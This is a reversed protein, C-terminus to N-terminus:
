EEFNKKNLDDWMENFDTYARSLGNGSNADTIIKETSENFDKQDADIYKHQRITWAPTCPILMECDAEWYYKEGAEIYVIDGKVFSQKNGDGTIITGKGSIIYCAEKCELNMEFGKAPERGTIKALAINLEKWHLPYENVVCSGPNKFEKSEAFKTIKM